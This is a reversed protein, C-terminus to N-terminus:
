CKSSIPGHQKNHCTTTPHHPTTAFNFDLRPWGITMRVLLDGVSWACSHCRGHPFAVSTARDSVYIYIYIYVYKYIAFSFSSGCKYNKNLMAGWRDRCWPPDISSLRSLMYFVKFVLKLPKHINNYINKQLIKFRKIIIPALLRVPLM